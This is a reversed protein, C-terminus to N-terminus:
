SGTWWGDYVDEFTDGDQYLDDCSVVARRSALEEAAPHQLTRVIM